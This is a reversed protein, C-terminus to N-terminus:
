RRDERPVSVVTLQERRWGHDVRTGHDGHSSLQATTCTTYTGDLDLYARAETGDPLTVLAGNPIHSRIRGLNHMYFDKM